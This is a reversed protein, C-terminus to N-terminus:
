FRLFNAVFSAILAIITVLYSFASFYPRFQREDTIYTSWIGTFILAVVILIAALIHASIWLLNFGLVVILLAAIAQLMLLLTALSTMEQLLIYQGRYAFVAIGFMLLGLGALILTFLRAFWGLFLAVSETKPLVSGDCVPFQAGCEVVTFLRPVAFGFILMAVVVFIVSRTLLELPREVFM